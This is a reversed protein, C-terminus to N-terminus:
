GNKQMSLRVDKGTANDKAILVIPTSRENESLIKRQILVQGNYFEQPVYKKWVDLVPYPKKSLPWDIVDNSSDYNIWDEALVAPRNVTYIDELGTFAHAVGNPIVLYRRPDPSFEITHRNHLTPSDKRCDLLDLRIRKNASGLFTLRDEQGMHLGFADHSYEKSGHDVVYMPYPDLLPVIGSEKGTSLCFHKKWAIGSIKCDNPISLDVEEEIHPERFSLTAQSGDIFTVTETEAHKYKVNSLAQRQQEAILRYLLDSAKEKNPLFRPATKPDIDIPINIIDGDIDWETTGDIWEKPSPLYINYDNITFVNELGFFTHAVGPPICLTRASNPNFEVKIKCGRTSSHARCDLFLASIKSNTNGLFTLRDEQGLHVGYHGYEFESEGHYVINTPRM